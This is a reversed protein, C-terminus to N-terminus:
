MVHYVSWRVGVASGRRVVVALIVGGRWVGDVMVLDWFGRDRGGRGKGRAGRVLIDM